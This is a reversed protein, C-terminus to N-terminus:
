IASRRNRRCWRLSGCRDVATPPRAANDNSANDLAAYPGSAITNIKTAALVAAARNVRRDCDRDRHEQQHQHDRVSLHDRDVRIAAAGVCHGFLVEASRHAQQSRRAPDDVVHQCNRHAQRGACGTRAADKRHHGMVQQAYRQRPKGQDGGDVQASDRLRGLHQHSRIRCLWRPGNSAVVIRARVSAMTAVSGIRKFQADGSPPRRDVKSTAADLPRSIKVIAGAPHLTM